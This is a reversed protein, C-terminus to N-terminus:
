KTQQFFCVDGQGPPLCDSNCPHQRFRAPRFSAIPLPLCVALSGSEATCTSLRSHYRSAGSRALRASHNLTSNNVPFGCYTPFSQVSGDSFWPRGPLCLLLISTMRLPTLHCIFGYYHLLEPRLFSNVSQLFFGPRVATQDAPAM